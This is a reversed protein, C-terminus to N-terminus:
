NEELQRLLAQKKELPIEFSSYVMKVIQQIQKNSFKVGEMQKQDQNSLIGSDLWQVLLAIDQEQKAYSIGCDILM